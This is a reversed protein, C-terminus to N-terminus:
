PKFKPNEVVEGLIDGQYVEQWSKVDHWPIGKPALIEAENAYPGYYPEGHKAKWYIDVDIGDALRVKYVYGGVDAFPIADHASKTTGVFGSKESGFLHNEVSMNTGKAKLGGATEIEAPSREDGRFRFPTSEEIPGVELLTDKAGLLITEESAVRKALDLENLLSRLPIQGLPLPEASLAPESFVLDSARMVTGFVKGTGAGIFNGAGVGFLKKQAPEADNTQRFEYVAELSPKVGFTAGDGMANLLFNPAIYVNSNPLRIGEEGVARDYGGLTKSYYPATYLPDGFNRTPDFMSLVTIGTNGLDRGINIFEKGTDISVDVFNKL